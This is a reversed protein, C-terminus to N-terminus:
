VHVGPPSLPGLSSSSKPTIVGAARAAAPTISRAFNSAYGNERILLRRPRSDYVYVCFLRTPQRYTPFGNNNEHAEVSNGCQGFLLGGKM